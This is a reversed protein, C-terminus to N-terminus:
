RHQVRPTQRQTAILSPSAARVACAARQAAGGQAAHLTWCRATAQSAAPREPGCCGLAPLTQAVRLVFGEKAETLGAALAAARALCGQGEGLAGAHWCAPRGRPGAAAVAARM